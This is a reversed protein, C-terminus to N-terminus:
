TPLILYNYITNYVKPLHMNFVLLSSFTSYQLIPVNGELLCSHFSLHPPLLNVVPLHHIIFISFYILSCFSFYMPLFSTCAYFISSQPGYFSFTTLPAAPFFHLLRYYCAHFNSILFSFYLFLSLICPWSCFNCIFYYCFVKNKTMTENFPLCICIHSSSSTESTAQPRTGVSM